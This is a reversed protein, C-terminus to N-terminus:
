TIVAGFARDVLDVISARPAPRAGAARSWSYGADVDTTAASLALACAGLFFLFSEPFCTM